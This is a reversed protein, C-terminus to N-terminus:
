FRKEVKAFNKCHKRVNEEMSFLATNKMKGSLHRKVKGLTSKDECTKASKLNEAFNAVRHRVFILIDFRM